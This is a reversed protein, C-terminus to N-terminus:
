NPKIQLIQTSIQLQKNRTRQEYLWKSFEVSSLHAPLGYNDNIIQQQNKNTAAKNLIPKGFEENPSFLIHLLNTEMIGSKTLTFLLEDVVTKQALKNKEKSFLVYDEDAKIKISGNTREKEYPFICYTTGEEPVDLYIALYGSVPTKFYLYVQQNENFVDTQCTINDCSLTKAEYKAVIPTLERVLGYVVAEYFTSKGDQKPEVKPEEINKIWEGKVYVNSISNFVQNFETKTNKQQNTTYLTNGEFVVEGFAKQIADIKALNIAKEKAQQPTENALLEVRAFGESKKETQSFCILTEFILVLILLFSKM